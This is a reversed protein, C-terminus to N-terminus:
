VREAYPSATERRGRFGLLAEDDEAGPPSAIANQAGDVLLFPTRM